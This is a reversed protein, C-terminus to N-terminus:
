LTGKLWKAWRGSDGSCKPVDCYQWEVDPDTTYCWSGEPKQDPNRCNNSIEEFTNDPFKQANTFTHEHPEQSDWRQCM